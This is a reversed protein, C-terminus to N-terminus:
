VHPKEQRHLVALPGVVALRDIRPQHVNRRRFPRHVCTCDSKLGITLLHVQLGGVEKDDADIQRALSYTDDAALRCSASSRCPIWRRIHVTQFGNREHVCCREAERTVDHATRDLVLPRRDRVRPRVDRGDTNTRVVRREVHLTHCPSNHAQVGALFDCYRADVLCRGLGTRLRQGQVGVVIRSSQGDPRGFYQSDNSVPLDRPHDGPCVERWPRERCALHSQIGPMRRGHVQEPTRGSCLDAGEHAAAIARPRREDLAPRDNDPRPLRVDVIALVLIDAARGLQPRTREDPDVGLLMQVEDNSRRM